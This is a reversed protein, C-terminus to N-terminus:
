GHMAVTNDAVTAGPMAQPMELRTIKWHWHEFKLHVVMPTENAPGPVSAEFRAPAVFRAHVRALAAYGPASRADAPMMKGAMDLLEQTNLQTDIANSVATSAFSSGFDPLDDAGPPPGVIAAITDSKLSGNLASWDIHAALRAPDHTRIASDISWLAIYPSLAYAGLCFCAFGSGIRTTGRPSRRRPAVTDDNVFPAHDFVENGYASFADRDATGPIVTRRGGLLGGFSVM